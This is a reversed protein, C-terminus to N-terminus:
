VYRDPDTPISSLPWASRVRTEVVNWIMNMVQHITMNQDGLPGGAVGITMDQVMNYNLKQGTELKWRLPDQAQAMPARNLVAVVTIAALLISSLRINIRM